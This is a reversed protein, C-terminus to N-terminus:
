KLVVMHRTRKNDRLFNEPHQPRSLEPNGQDIQYAWDLLLSNDNLGVVRFKAFHNDSTWLVYTHGPIAEVYGLDSWGYEPAYSIDDMSDTYGFDQIDTDINGVDIFFVDLENDYDVTIDARPDDFGVIRRGSFDFGTLDSRYDMDYLLLDIGAPRPTDFVNEPSLDSENGSYDYAAVAYYYTVGNQVADDLYYGEAVEAILDFTGSPQFSRYVAYGALDVEDSEYWLIEVFGDGTISIVGRPTAPPEFDEAPAVVTEEVTCGAALLGLLLMGVLFIMAKKM